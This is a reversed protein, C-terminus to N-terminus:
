EQGLFSYRYLRLSYDKPIYGFFNYELSFPLENTLFTKAAEPPTLWSSSTLCASFNNPEIFCPGGRVSIILFGVNTPESRRYL